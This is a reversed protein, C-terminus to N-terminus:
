TNEQVVGGANPVIENVFRSFFRDEFTLYLKSEAINTKFDHSNILYISPLIVLYMVDSIQGLIAEKHVEYPALFIMAAIFAAFFEVSWAIITIQINLLVRRNRRIKSSKPMLKSLKAM